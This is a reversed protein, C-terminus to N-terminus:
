TEFQLSEARPRLKAWKFPDVVLIQGGYSGLFRTRPLAPSRPLLIRRCITTM